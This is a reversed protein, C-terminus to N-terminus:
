EEDEEEQLEKQIDRLEDEVAVDIPKYDSGENWIVTEVALSMVGGTDLDATLIDIGEAELDKKLQEYEAIRKKESLRDKLIAIDDNTPIIVTSM